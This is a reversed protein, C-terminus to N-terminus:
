EVELLLIKNAIIDKKTVKNNKLFLAVESAIDTNAVSESINKKTLKLLELPAYKTRYYYSPRIKLRDLGKRYEKYIHLWNNSGIFECFNGNPLVCMQFPDIELPDISSDLIENINEITLPTKAYFLLVEIKHLLNFSDIKQMGEFNQLVKNLLQTDNKDM